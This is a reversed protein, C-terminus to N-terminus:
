TLLYITEFTLFQQQDAMVAILSFEATQMSPTSMNNMLKDIVMAKHYGMKWVILLCRQM